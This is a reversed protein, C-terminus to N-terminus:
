DPLHAFLRSCLALRTRSCSQRNKAYHKYIVNRIRRFINCTYISLFIQLRNDRLHFTLSIRFSTIM